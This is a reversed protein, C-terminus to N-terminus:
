VCMGSVAVPDRSHAGGVCELFSLMVTLGIKGATALHTQSILYGMASLFTNRSINSHYNNVPVPFLGIDRRRTTHLDVGQNRNTKM